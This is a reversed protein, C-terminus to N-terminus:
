VAGKGLGRYCVLNMRIIWSGSPPPGAATTWPTAESKYAFTQLVPTALLCLVQNFLKAPCGYRSRDAITPM